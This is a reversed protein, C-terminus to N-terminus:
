SILFGYILGKSNLLAVTIAKLCLHLFRQGGLIFLTLFANKIFFIFFRLFRQIFFTSLNVVDRLSFSFFAHYRKLAVARWSIIKIGAMYFGDSLLRKIFFNLLNLLIKAPKTPYVFKDVLFYFVKWFYFFTLFRTKKFLLFGLFRKKLRHMICYVYMRCDRVCATYMNVYM